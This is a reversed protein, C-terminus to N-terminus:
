GEYIRTEKRGTVERYLEDLERKAEKLAAVAKKDPVGDVQGLRDLRWVILTDGKRLSRLCEALKGSAKTARRLARRACRM